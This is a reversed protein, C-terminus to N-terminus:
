LKQKSLLLLGLNPVMCASDYIRVVEKKEETKMDIMEHHITPEALKQCKTQFAAMWFSPSSELGEKFTLM